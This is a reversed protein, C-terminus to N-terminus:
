AIAGRGFILSGRSVAVSGTAIGAFLAHAFHVVLKHAYAADVVRFNGCCCARDLEHVFVERRGIEQLAHLVADNGVRLRNRHNAHDVFGAAFTMRLQLQEGVGIVTGFLHFGIFLYVKDEIEDVLVNPRAFM